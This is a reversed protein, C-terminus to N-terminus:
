IVQVSSRPCRVAESLRSPVLEPRTVAVRFVKIKVAPDV